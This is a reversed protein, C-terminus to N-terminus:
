IMVKDVNVKRVGAGKLVFDYLEEYKEKYDIYQDVPVLIELNTCNVDDTLSELVEQADDLSTYSKSRIDDYYRYRVLYVM